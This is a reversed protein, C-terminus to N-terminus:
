WYNAVDNQHPRRITESAAHTVEERHEVRQIQADVEHREALVEVGTRSSGGLVPLCFLFGGSILIGVAFRIFRM